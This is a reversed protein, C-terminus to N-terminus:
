PAETISTDVSCATNTSVVKDVLVTSTGKLLKQATSTSSNYIEDAELIDRIFTLISAQPATLGGNSSVDGATAAGYTALATQVDTISINELAAVDAQIDNCCATLDAATAPDFATLAAAVAGQIVAGSALGDADDAFAAEFVSALSEKFATGDADDFLAAEVAVAIQAATPLSNIGLLIASQANAVDTATAIGATALANGVATEVDAGTLEVEETDVICGDANNWYFDGSARLRGNSSQFGNYAYWGTALAAPVTVFYNYTGVGSHTAPLVAGVQGGANDFIRIEHAQNDNVSPFEIVNRAM